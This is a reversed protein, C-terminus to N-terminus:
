VSVAEADVRHRALPPPTRMVQERTVRHTCAGCIAGVAGGCHACWNAAHGRLVWGAVMALLVVAGLGAVAVYVAM